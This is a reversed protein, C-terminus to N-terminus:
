KTIFRPPSPLAVFSAAKTCFLHLSKCIRPSPTGLGTPGQPYCAPPTVCVFVGARCVPSRPPRLSVELYSMSVRCDASDRSEEIAQFLDALTRLYIGPETDTGLM